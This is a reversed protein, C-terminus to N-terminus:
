EEESWDVYDTINDFRGISGFTQWMMRAMLHKYKCAKANADFKSGISFSDKDARALDPERQSFGVSWTM